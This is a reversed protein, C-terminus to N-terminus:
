IIKRMNNFYNTQIGFFVNPFIFGFIIFHIDNLLNSNFIKRILYINWLIIIIFLTQLLISIYINLNFKIQLFSILKDIFLGTIMGTFILFVVDKYFTKFKLFQKM